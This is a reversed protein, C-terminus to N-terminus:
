HQEQDGHPQPPPALPLDVSDALVVSVLPPAQRLALGLLYPTSGFVFRRLPPVAHLLHHILSRTAARDPNPADRVVADFTDSDTLRHQGVDERLKAFDHRHGDTALVAPPLVPACSM